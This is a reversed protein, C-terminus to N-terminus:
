NMLPHWYGDNNTDFLSRFHNKKLVFEPELLDKIIAKKYSLSQKNCIKEGKVLWTLFSWYRLNHKRCFRTAKNKRKEFIVSYLHIPILSLLKEICLDELEYRHYQDLSNLLNCVYVKYTKKYNLEM